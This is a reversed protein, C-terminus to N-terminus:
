ALVRWGDGDAALLAEELRSSHNPESEELLLLPLLLSGGAATCVCVHQMAAM